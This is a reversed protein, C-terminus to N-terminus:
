KERLRAEYAMILCVVILGIMPGAHQTVILVTLLKQLLRTLPHSWIM